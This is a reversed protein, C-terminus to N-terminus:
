LIFINKAVIDADHKAVADALKPINRDMIPNFWAKPTRRKGNLGASTFKSIAAKNYGKESLAKKISQKSSGLARGQVVSIPYGRGVGKHVFVAHRPMKYGIGNIKDASKYYRDRLFRRMQGTYSKIGLANIEARLPQIQAKGWGRVAANRADIGKITDRARM